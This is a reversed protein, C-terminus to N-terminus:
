PTLSPACSFAEPGLPMRLARTGTFACANLQATLSTKLWQKRSYPAVTLSISCRRLSKDLAGPLGSGTSRKSM